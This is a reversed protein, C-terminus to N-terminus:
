VGEVIGTFKMELIRRRSMEHALETVLDFHPQDEPLPPYIIGDDTVLGEWIEDCEEDTFATWRNEVTM